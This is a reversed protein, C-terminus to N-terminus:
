TPMDQRTLFDPDRRFRHQFKEFWRELSNMPVTIKDGDTSGFSEMYRFLNFAVRKAFDERAGLKSSEKLALEAAPELSVGACVLRM